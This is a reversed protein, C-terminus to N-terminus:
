ISALEVKFPTTLSLRYIILAYGGLFHEYQVVVRERQFLPQPHPANSGM